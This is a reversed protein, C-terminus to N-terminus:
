QLILVHFLALLARELLSRPGERGCAREAETMDGKAGGGGARALACVSTKHDAREHTECYTQCLFLVSMVQSPLSLLLAGHLYCM